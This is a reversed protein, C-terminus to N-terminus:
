LFMSRGAGVFQQVFLPYGGQEAGPYSPKDFRGVANPYSPKHFRGVADPAPRQPHVLLVEAARQIRIGDTCWHIEALHNWIGRNPAEDPSFRFIPHSRGVATLEPRFSAVREDEDRAVGTVQVPLMDRLPSNRYAHPSYRPGAIMLLGGGREKVFDAL